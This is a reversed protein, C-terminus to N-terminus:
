KLEMLLHDPNELYEKLKELFRAAQAGDLIRHDFTLSVPLIKATKIRLGAPVVRDFIKGLGLIAAEGPNIVPTGYTGGVSGYNTITFTGGKLDMIDITRKRAKEAMEPIEKALQHISKSEAIKIVPVMLGVETEVAVGINFYKKIIIEDGQLSSNLIPNEKLAAIVAKIIFPLFTLKIGEKELAKKQDNRLKWLKTVDIDEMSTVQASETLSRVMNQAITKRIGKLPIRELYGFDDYKKKVTVTQQPIKEIESEAGNANEIDKMTIMGGAGTGTVKALDIGLEVAKKRVAPFAVIADTKSAAQMPQSHLREESNEGKVKAEKKVNETKKAAPIKDKEDGIVVLVEGVKVTDGEKYNIRLVKGSVPAPIDVVAKDTEVQVINQDAKITDGEKVLWKVIEGEQIGEGVDPFKFETAM